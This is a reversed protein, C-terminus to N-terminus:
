AIDALRMLMCGSVGLGCAHSGPHGTHAHLDKVGLAWEEAELLIRQREVRDDYQGM